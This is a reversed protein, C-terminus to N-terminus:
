IRNNHDYKTNYRSRHEHHQRQHCLEHLQVVKYFITGNKEYNTITDTIPNYLGGSTKQGLIEGYNDSYYHQTSMYSPGIFLGFILTCIGLVLLTFQTKKYHNKALYDVKEMMLKLIKRM